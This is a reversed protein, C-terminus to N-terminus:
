DYFFLMAKAQLVWTPRQSEMCCIWKWCWGKTAELKMSPVDFLTGQTRAPSSISWQEMSRGYNEHEGTGWPCLTPHQLRWWRKNYLYLSIEFFLINMFWDSSGNPRRTRTSTSLRWSSRRCLSSKKSWGSHLTKLSWQVAKKSWWTWFAWPPICFKFHKEMGASRATSFRQLSAWPSSRSLVQVVLSWEQQPLAWLSRNIALWLSRCRQTTTWSKTKEWQGFRTLQEATLSGM